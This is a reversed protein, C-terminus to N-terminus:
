IQVVVKLTKCNIFNNTLNERNTVARSQLQHLLHHLTNHRGKIFASLIRAILTRLLRHCLFAVASSPPYDSELGAWPSIATTSATQISESYTAKARCNRRPSSPNTGLPMVQVCFRSEFELNTPQFHLL